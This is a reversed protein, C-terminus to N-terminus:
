KFIRNYYYTRRTVIAPYIYFNYVALSFISFGSTNGQSPLQYRDEEVKPRKVDVTDEQVSHPDGVEFLDLIVRKKTAISNGKLLFFGHSDEQEV